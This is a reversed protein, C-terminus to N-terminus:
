NSMRDVRVPGPLSRKEAMRDEFDEITQGFRRATGAYLADFRASADGALPVVAGKIKDWNRGVLVGAVFLFVSRM